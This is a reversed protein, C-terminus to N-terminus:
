PEVFFSTFKYNRGDWEFFYHSADDTDLAYNGNSFRVKPNKQRFLDDAFSRFNKLFQAKTYTGEDGADWAYEFPFKTMLVVAAKDRSAMARSFKTYFAQFEPLTASLRLNVYDLLSTFKYGSGDKKFILHSFDNDIRNILCYTGSGFDFVVPNAQTFLKTGGLNDAFEGYGFAADFEEKSKTYEEDAMYGVIIPFRTMSVVSEKDRKLAADKFGAYFKQFDQPATNLTLRKQALVNSSTFFFFFSLTSFVAVKKM